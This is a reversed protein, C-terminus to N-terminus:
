VQNPHLTVCTCPEDVKEFDRCSGQNRFTLRSNFPHVKHGVVKCHRGRLWFVDVQWLVYLGSLNRKIQPWQVSQGPETHASGLFSRVPQTNNSTLEFLRIQPNGAAVLFQKNPSIAM